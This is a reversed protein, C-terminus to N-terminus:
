RRVEIILAADAPARLLRVWAGAPDRVDIVLAGGAAALRARLSLSHEVALLAALASAPIDEPTWITTAAAAAAAESAAVGAGAPPMAAGELHVGCASLVVASVGDSPDDLFFANPLTPAALSTASM